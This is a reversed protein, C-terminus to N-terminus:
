VRVSLRDVPANFRGVVAADSPVCGGSSACAALTRQINESEVRAWVTRNARTWLAPREWFAAAHNLRNDSGVLAARDGGARLWPRADMRFDDGHHPLHADIQRLGRCRSQRSRQRLASLYQNRHSAPILTWDHRTQCTIVPRQLIGFAIRQLLVPMTPARTVTPAAAVSIRTGTEAVPRRPSAACSRWRSSPTV